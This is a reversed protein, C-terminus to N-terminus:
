RVIALKGVYTEEGNSSSSFILYIGSDAARGGFGRADWVATGGAASVEKVLRGGIDTIKVVADEALGSIGVEGTFGPRIPNPFIKVNRHKEGAQTSTGRISILGKATAIFVEGTIPNLEIDVVVNSPLPSNDVTYNFILNEGSPDFLWIGNKTGIWKRDGGDVAISTIFEDELLFRNEFIPQIAEFGSEIFIDDTPIFAIGRDTGIWPQGGRAFVVDTVDNSPLNGNTPTLLSSEGLAESFVLIGGGEDADLRMWIDDLENISLSIPFRAALANFSFSTWNGQLDRKHLPSPSDYNSVWLNGGSDFGLGTLLTEEGNAAVFPSGTSGAQTVENNTVDILGDAFSTIKIGDNANGSIGSLSGFATMETSVVEWSGQSFISYEELSDPVIIDNEFKGHLAFIQDEFFYLESINNSAPGSVEFSEFTMGQGRFLGLNDDAVWLTADSDVLVDNPSPSDTYIIEESEKSAFSYSNLRDDFSILVQDECTNVAGVVGIVNPVAEWENERFYIGGTRAGAILTEGVKNVFDLPENPIPLFSLRNWSQFDLLNDLGVINGSILGFDTALYISDGLIVSERVASREGSPGLNLYTEKIELKSLDLVVVGFATSLYALDNFVSIHNIRRSGTVQAGLIQTLNVIENDSYLDINGSQYGIILWAPETLSSFAMASIGVDSLGDTRTLRNISNDDEDYYFLGNDTSCYIRNEGRTILRANQYNFHSRWDGIPILSQAFASSSFM